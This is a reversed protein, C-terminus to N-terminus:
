QQQFQFSFVSFVTVFYNKFTHFTSHSENKINKFVHVNSSCYMFMSLVTYLCHFNDRLLLIQREKFAHFHFFFSFSFVHVYSEAFASDLGVRLIDDRHKKNTTM